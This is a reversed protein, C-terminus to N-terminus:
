RPPYIMIKQIGSRVTKQLHASSATITYLYVNPSLRNGFQDTLDWSQGNVAHEIVRLLKGSLAYIKITVDIDHGWSAVSQSTPAFFFRASAGLRAPNPYCFIHDLSFDGSVITLGFAARSVNGTLDAATISLSYSGPSLSNEEFVLTAVGRRYDGPSFQFQSNINKKALAGKVEMTIGEDPNTGIVDIGSSDAIDVECKLPLEGTISSTFSVKANLAPDDFVPRITITPGITDRRGSNVTGKFIFNDLSGLAGASDQWAYAILKAGTKLFEVKQPILITQNFKGAT